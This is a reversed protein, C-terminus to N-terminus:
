GAESVVADGDQERLHTPLGVGALYDRVQEVLTAQEHEFPAGEEYNWIIYDLIPLIDDAGAPAAIKLGRRLRQTNRTLRRDFDDEIEKVPKKAAALERTNQDDIEKEAQRYRALVEAYTPAPKATKAAVPMAHMNM